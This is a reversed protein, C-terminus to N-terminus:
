FLSMWATEIKFINAELNSIKVGLIMIEKACVLWPIFTYLQSMNKM